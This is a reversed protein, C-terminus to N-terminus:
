QKLGFVDVLNELFAGPNLRDAIQSLANRRMAINAEPREYLRRIADLYGAILIDDDSDQPILFGTKGDIVVEGIGGVDTAIVPMGAALADLIVIPLGDFSSTYLLADYQDYDLSAFGDFSGKITMNSTSALKTVDFGGLVPAGYVDIHIDAGSGELQAAIRLLLDPRKQQDFRSAWLLRRQFSVGRREVADRTTLLESKTYLVRIKATLCDLRSCDYDAIGQHDAVVLDIIQGHESLFDFGSGGDFSLRDIMLQDNCFRYFIFRNNQLLSGFRSCFRQAYPSPKLHIRAAPATSEILRLTIADVDADDLGPGLQQIDVFLANDPLLNLGQHQEIPQGTLVLFKSNPNLQYIGHMVNVIYKEGGGRTIFPFLFVDTFKANGVLMCARFYALGRLREIIINSWIQPPAGWWPFIAPEIKNAAHILELYKPNSRFNTLIQEPDVEPVQQRENELYDRKCVTLYTKPVFLPSPPMEKMSITNMRHLLGKRWRYFLITDPAVAFEYGAAALQSNFHYDEYAYGAGLRVDFFSLDDFARRYLCIRSSFPHDRIFQLPSYAESGSYKVLLEKEGFGFHYEPVIVHREGYSKACSYHEFVSNFSVLDDEDCFYIIEGHSARVGDNRSLGLSGNDVEVYEIHDFSDSQYARAWRRAEPPSRDMLFVLETRVGFDRAYDSAEELSWLTRRLYKTGDHINLVLSIDYGSTMLHGPSGM